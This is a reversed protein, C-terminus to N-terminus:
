FHLNAYLKVIELDTGSRIAVAEYTLGSCLYPKLVAQFQLNAPHGLRLAERCAPDNRTTEQECQLCRYARRAVPWGVFKPLEENARSYCYTLNYVFAPDKSAYLLRQEASLQQSDPFHRERIVRIFPSENPLNLIVYKIESNHM